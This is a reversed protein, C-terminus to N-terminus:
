SGKQESPVKRKMLFVSAVGVVLPPIFGSIFNGWGSYKLSGPVYIGPIIWISAAIAITIIKIIKRRKDEIIIKGALFFIFWIAFGQGIPFLIVQEGHAYALSPSLFMGLLTFIELLKNPFCNKINASKAM